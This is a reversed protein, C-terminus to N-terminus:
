KNCTMVSTMMLSTMVVYKEIKNKHRHRISKYLILKIM